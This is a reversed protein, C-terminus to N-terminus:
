SGESSKSSWEWSIADCGVLVLDEAVCIHTFESRISCIKM